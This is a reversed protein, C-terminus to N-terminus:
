LNGLIDSFETEELIDHYSFHGGDGYVPCLFMDGISRLGVNPIPRDAFPFSYLHVDSWQRTM